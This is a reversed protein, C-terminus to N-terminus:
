PLVGGASRWAVRLRACVSEPLFTAVADLMEDPPEPVCPAVAVHAVAFGHEVALGRAVADVSADPHRVDLM